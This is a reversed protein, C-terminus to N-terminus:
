EHNDTVGFTVGAGGSIGTAGSTGPHNPEIFNGNTKATLTTNGNAGVGITTGTTNALPNEDTGNNLIDVNGQGKGSVTVLIASHPWPNTASQGRILNGTISIVDTTSGSVGMIGSFGVRQLQRGAGPHRWCEPLQYRHEGLYHGQDPELRNYASGLIQLNIAYGLSNALTTSSTITNGTIIADDLTGNFNQVMIGHWRANTLTNNTITVTGSINNETGAAQNNFAVNSDDAGGGTGSNDIFSNQLTFNTVGTGEIGSGATNQIAIRTFSPALTSTLSIGHSTTNQIAGGTCTATSTCSGGNGTVVLSGSSGTTNLVIGSAAGSASISQFTVGNAGINTNAVNLATGSGSNITSGSGTATVTGGSGPGVRM